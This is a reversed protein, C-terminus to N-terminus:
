KTLQKMMMQVHEKKQPLSSILFHNSVMPQHTKTRTIIDSYKVCVRIFIFVSDDVSRLSPTITRHLRYTPCDESWQM